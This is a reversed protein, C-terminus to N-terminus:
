LLTRAESRGCGRKRRSVLPRNDKLLVCGWIGVETEASVLPLGGRFKRLSLRVGQGRCASQTEGTSAHEPAEGRAKCYNYSGHSGAIM